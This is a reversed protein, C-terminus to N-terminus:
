EVPAKEWLQFTRVLVPYWRSLKSFDGRTKVKGQTSAVFPDIERNFIKRLTDRGGTIVFEASESSDIKIIKGKEYHFCAIENTDQNKVALTCTLGHKQGLEQVQKDQNIVQKLRDRHEKSM